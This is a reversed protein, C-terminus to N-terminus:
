ICGVGLCTYSGGNYVDGSSYKHKELIISIKLNNKNLTDKFKSIIVSINIIFNYSIQSKSQFLKTPCNSPVPLPGSSCVHCRNITIPAVDFYLCHNERPLPIILIKTKNRSQM